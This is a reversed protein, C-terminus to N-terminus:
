ASAGQDWVLDIRDLPAIAQTRLTAAPDLRRAGARLQYPGQRNIRVGVARLLDAGLQAVTADLRGLVVVGMTDGQVFGYLPMVTM